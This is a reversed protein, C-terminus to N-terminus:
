YTFPDIYGSQNLVSQMQTAYDLPDIAAELPGAPSVIAESSSSRKITEGKEISATVTDASAVIRDAEKMLQQYLWTFLEGEPAPLSRIAEAKARISPILRLATEGDSLGEEWNGGGLDNIKWVNADLLQKSLGYMEKCLTCAKDAYAQLGTKQADTVPTRLYIYNKTGAAGPVYKIEFGTLEGISRLPLYTVNEYSIPHIEEGKENKFAQKVGDVAVSIDPRLTAAEQPHLRDFKMFTSGTVQEDTGHFKRAATGTLSVTSTAPDWAVAKGMWEGASRVPIYTSGNYNIAPMFVGQENPFLVSVGQAYIQANPDTVTIGTDAAQATLGCALVAALAVAIRKVFMM